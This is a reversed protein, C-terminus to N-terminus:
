NGNHREQIQTLRSILLDPTRFRQYPQKKMLKEVLESVEQSTDSVDSLPPPELTCVAHLIAHLDNPDKGAFPNKGSLLEYMLTGISFFDSKFTMAVKDNRAQEPSSYCPTCPAFLAATATEGSSGQVRAIGLDIIVIDGNPRIMLNEPKIDRHIIPPNQEWLLKLANSILSVIKILSVENSFEAMKNSLTDGDIFEEITVFLRGLSLPEDTTPNDSFTDYFLLTPFSDIDLENLIRIERQLRSVDNSSIGSSVKLVVKGWKQWEINEQGFEVLYVVRQGSKKAIALISMEPLLSTLNERLEDSDSLM